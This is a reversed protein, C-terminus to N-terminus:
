MKWNRMSFYVCLKLKKQAKKLFFTVTVKKPPHLSITVTVKKDGKQAEM